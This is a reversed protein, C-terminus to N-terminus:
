DVYYKAYDEAIANYIINGILQYGEKTFHIHDAKMLDQKIWKEASGLGGMLAFVDVVGGNYEEALQKMAAQARVGNKNPTYYRKRGRGHRIASDNNTLWIFSCNPNVAQIRKILQRYREKFVEPKFEEYPVYADNIGIGFIVLDPPLLSLEQEFHYNCRAWSELSAGNIGAETYTIGHRLSEPIMGRLIFYHRDELPLYEKRNITPNVTRTLGRVGLTAVSDPSFFQFVWVGEVDAIRSLIPDAWLTDGRQTILFPIVSPDSTEGLVTLQTFDWKGNDRLRLTLTAEKDSTIAAAGALGLEADPQKSVNRSGKWIGTYDFRYYSPSNTRIARFPFCLGRDGSPEFQMRITNSLEGGQVHSGGIHLINVKESLTPLSDSRLAHLKDYFTRLGNESGPVLLHIHRKLVVSPYDEAPHLAYTRVPVSLDICFLLFITLLITLLRIKM